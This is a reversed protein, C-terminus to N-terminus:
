AKAEELTFREPYLIEIESIKGNFFKSIKEALDPSPKEKMREIRSITSASCEVGSALGYITVNTKTRIKKLPTAVSTM